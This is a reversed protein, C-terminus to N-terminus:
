QGDLFNELILRASEADIDGSFNNEAFAIKAESTTLREDHFIIPLGFKELKKAFNKVRNGHASMTGDINYPMGIIIASPKKNAIFIELYELLENKSVTKHAFCFNEVSYALGTKRTGYDLAIYNNKM